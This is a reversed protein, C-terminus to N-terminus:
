KSSGLFSKVNGFHMKVFKKPDLKHEILEKLAGEVHTSGKPLPFGAEKSLFSIQKLAAARALISAAAVELYKSEAKEERIDGVNCGPYKDVVHKGPSLYKATEKHLKNLIVTQRSDKNYEQPLLSIVECPSIKRIEQALLPIEQDSLKKSDAVGLELLKKRIKDDAKVAAVVLGGFTDGKLSEDSGIIWGTEKRFIEPKVRKGIKLHELLEITKYQDKGQILLKKTKYLILTNNGKKLRLDEHITKTTVLEFGEQLLKEIGVKKVSKFVTM